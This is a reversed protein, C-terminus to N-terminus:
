WSFVKIHFVDSTISIVKNVKIRTQRSVFRFRNDVCCDVALAIRKWDVEELTDNSFM